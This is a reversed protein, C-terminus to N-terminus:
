NKGSGKTEPSSVAAAPKEPASGVKPKESKVPEQPIPPLNKVDAPKWAAVEADAKEVEAKQLQTALRDAMAKARASVKTKSLNQTIRFWKYSAVHDPNLRVDEEGQSGMYMLMAYGFTGVSHGMDAARKYWEAATRYNKTVGIGQQYMTAIVVTAEVNNNIAAKRYLRMAESPDREVGYGQLYMNGLLLLAKDDGTEALPRLYYIAQVWNKENYAQFGKDFDALAATATSLIFLLAFFTRKIV